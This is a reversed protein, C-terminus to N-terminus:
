CAKLEQRRRAGKEMKQQTKKCVLTLQLFSSNSLPHSAARKFPLCQVISWFAGDGKRKQLKEIMTKTKVMSHHFYNITFYM